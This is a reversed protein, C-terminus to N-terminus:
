HGSTIDFFCAAADVCIDELHSNVCRNRRTDQWQQRTRPNLSPGGRTFLGFRNLARSPSRRRDMRFQVTFTQRLTSQITSLTFM